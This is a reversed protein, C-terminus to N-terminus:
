QKKVMDTMGPSHWQGYGGECDDYILYGLYEDHLSLFEISKELGVAMLMTGLADAMASSEAIVTASLLNTPSSEGTLANITHVVRNGDADTYFRRYNGSTALGKGTLSVTTQLELGPIMNGDIPSDIGVVWDNGRRNRGHCYVEGGVEVMYNESGLGAIAQGILDVIYGKAVSNLEIQIAPDDKVLRGNEVRLKEYGVYRLLSDLDPRQQPDRGTFGWAETIPKITIDYVGGSLRSVYSAIEICAAINSDVSDTENRNLRNLLSQPDYVSMSASAERFTKEIAAALGTTDTLSAVIHYTTGIAFGDLTYYTPQHKINEGCSAAVLATLGAAWVCFSRKMTIYYENKTRVAIYCM